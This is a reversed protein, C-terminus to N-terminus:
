FVFSSSLLQTGTGLGSRWKAWRDRDHVYHSQKGICFLSSLFNVFLSLLADFLFIDLIDSHGDDNGEATTDERENPCIIYLAM